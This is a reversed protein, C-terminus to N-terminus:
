VMLHFFAILESSCLELKFFFFFSFLRFKSFVLFTNSRQIIKFHECIKGISFCKQDDGDSFLLLLFQFLVSFLLLSLSM